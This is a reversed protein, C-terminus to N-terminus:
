ALEEPVEPEVFEDKIPDYTFGIGAFKESTEM